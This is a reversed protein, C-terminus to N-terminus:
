FDLEFALLAGGGFIEEMAIAWYGTLPQASETDGADEPSLMKRHGAGVISGHGDRGGAGCGEVDEEADLAFGGVGGVKKV